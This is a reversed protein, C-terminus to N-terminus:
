VWGRDQLKTIERVTDVQMGQARLLQCAREFKAMYNNGEHAEGTFGMPTVIRAAIYALLAELHTLPLYIITNNPNAIAATKEIVPHNARYIVTLTTVPLGSALKLDAPVSLTNHTTARISLVNNEKNLIIEDGNDDLIREVKMVDNLFPEVVSDIIYTDTGANSVTKDSSLVYTTRGDLAITLRSENLLFRKHLETLGLTVAPLIKKTAVTPMTTDNDADYNTGTGVFLHSFEGYALHDLIDQLTM